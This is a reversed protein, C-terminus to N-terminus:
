CGINKNHGTKANWDAVKRYIEMLLQYNRESDYQEQYYEAIQGYDIELMRWRCMLEYLGSNSTADYKWGTVGEMILDGVNGFDPGIVPTGVSYAEVITMPFGEYWKTPLILAKVRGMIVRLEDAKQYGLFEVNTLNHDLVYTRCWNELNGTGCILLKPADSGLKDWTYLLTDIGKITELRGAYLFVNERDCRIAGSAQTQTFNPKIYIQSPSIQGLRLLKKRNFETLCIYSIKKYIGFFRHLKLSLACAITQLRSNRYCKNRIACSLGHNLCEECISGNRFLTAGPCLLRFNHITQIVPIHRSRAAYYVSPSILNLTNHVHVLDIKNDMICKRVEWYTRPNFVTSFPLLVLRWVPLKKLESNNRTYLHVTHGHKELLEKENIVVTDEGGPIQYYNHVILVTKKDKLDRCLEREM